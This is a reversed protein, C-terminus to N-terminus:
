LLTLLETLSSSLAHVLEEIGQEDILLTQNIELELGLYDSEIYKKRLSSQFSFRVGPHPYNLRIRYPPTQQLLLGHWLRAVEKEGHHTSDYSLGLATPHELSLSTFAHISLHLVQQHQDIHHQILTTTQQQFPLYHEEILQQKQLTSLTQAPPSFCRDHKLTRNCDILLPSITNYTCECHLQQQLRQVVDHTKQNMLAHQALTEESFLSQYSTPITDVAHTCSLVLITPKM